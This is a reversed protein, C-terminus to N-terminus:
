ENEKGRVKNQKNMRRVRTRRMSQNKKRSSTWYGPVIREEQSQAM